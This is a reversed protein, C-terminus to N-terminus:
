NFPFLSLSFYAALVTFIPHKAVFLCVTKRHDYPETGKFAGVEFPQILLLM